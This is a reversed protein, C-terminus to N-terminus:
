GSKQFPYAKLFLQADFDEIIEGQTQILPPINYDSYIEAESIYAWKQLELIQEADAVTADEIKIIL